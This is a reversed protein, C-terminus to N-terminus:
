MDQKTIKCEKNIFDSIEYVKPIRTFNHTLSYLILSFNLSWVCTPCTTLIIDPNTKIIDQTKKTTIKFSIFPHRIFFDGGFGCCNEPKQLSKYKANEINQLIEEIEDLNKGGAKLHCPHHYSITKFKKSTIKINKYFDTYFVLKEKNKPNLFPYDCVASFCTACDFVIMQSNEIIKENKQVILNHIDERGKTLYPLACCDFNGNKLKIGDIQFQKKLKKSICGEFYLIESNNDYKPTKKFISFFGLASIKLNFVFISNLFKGLPTLKKEQNIVDTTLVGSPCNLKCKECNLCLDFNKLIKKNLKLEKKKLGLIQSLKGRATTQETKQIDFIPCVGQCLGCRSCKLINKLVESDKM